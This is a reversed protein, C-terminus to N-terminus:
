RDRSGAGLVRNLLGIFWSRSTYEAPKVLLMINLGHAQYVVEHPGVEENSLAYYVTQGSISITESHCPQRDLVPPYCIGAQKSNEQSVLARIYLNPRDSQYYVFDVEDPHAVDGYTFVSDLEYGYDSLPAIDAGPLDQPASAGPFVHTLLSAPKREHAWFGV